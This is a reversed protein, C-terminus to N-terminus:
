RRKRPRGRMAARRQEIQRHEGEAHICAIHDLVIDLPQRELELPTCNYVRCLMLSEYSAHGIV